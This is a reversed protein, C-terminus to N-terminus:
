VLQAFVWESFVREIDWRNYDGDPFRSQLLENRNLMFVKYKEKFEAQLQLRESDSGIIFFPLRIIPPKIQSSIPSAFTRETITTIETERLHKFLSYILTGKQFYYLDCYFDADFGDDADPYTIFEIDPFPIKM